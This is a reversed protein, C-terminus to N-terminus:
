ENVKGKSVIRAYVGALLATIAAIVLAWGQTRLNELQVRVQAASVKIFERQRIQEETPAYLVRQGSANIYTILTGADEFEMRAHLRTKFERDEPTLQALTSEPIAPWHHDDVDKLASGLSSAGMFLVGGYGCLYIMGCVLLAAAKWATRRLALRRVGVFVALSALPLAACQSIFHFWPGIFSLWAQM